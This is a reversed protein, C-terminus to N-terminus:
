LEKGKSYSVANLSTAPQETFQSPCESPVPCGVTALFRLATPVSSYHELVWERGAAAIKELLEPEATIRAIAADVNDFDIGVYHKGNTPM